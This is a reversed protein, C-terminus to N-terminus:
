ARVVNSTTSVYCPVAQPTTLRLRVRTRRAVKSTFSASTVVTPKTATATSTLTVKKVQVWRKKLKSYRQFLVYKGTLARAATVKASYSGRAVRTLQVLPKVAVTLKGSLTTKLKAQYVTAVTPTVVATYAGNAATKVTAAKAFNTKGCVQEQVTVNQNAKAPALMGSITTTKAYVVSTPNAAISLTDLAAAGATAATVTGVVGATIAIWKRM